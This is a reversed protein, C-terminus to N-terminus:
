PPTTDLHLVGEGAIVPAREFCQVFPPGEGELAGILEGTRQLTQRAREGAQFLRPCRVLRCLSEAQKSAPFGNSCSGLCTDEDKWRVFVDVSKRSRGLCDASM